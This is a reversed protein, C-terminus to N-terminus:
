WVAGQQPLRRQHCTEPMVCIRTGEQIQLMSTVPSWSPSNVLEPNLAELATMSVGFRSSIMQWTDSARATYLLGLRVEEGRVLGDPDELGHNISWILSWHPAPLHAGGSSFRAAMSRLSDDPNICYFCKQVKLVFTHSSTPGSCRPDASPVHLRHEKPDGAHAFGVKWRV